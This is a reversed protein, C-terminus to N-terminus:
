QYNYSNKVRRSYVESIMEMDNESILGNQYARDIDYIVSDCYVWLSDENPASQNEIRVFVICDNFKGLYIPSTKRGMSQTISDAFVEGNFQKGYANNLENLENLTLVYDDYKADTNKISRVYIEDFKVIDNYTLFGKEYADDLSYINSDYCVWFSDVYLNIDPNDIEVFAICYSFKGVYVCGTKQTMAEDVSDAFKKGHRWKRCAENLEALDEETLIYEDYMGNTSEAAEAETANGIGECGALIGILMVSVIFLLIISILRHKM